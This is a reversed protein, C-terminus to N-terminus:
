LSHFVSAVDSAGYIGGEVAGFWKFRYSLYVMLWSIVVIAISIIIILNGMFANRGQLSIDNPNNPNYYLEVNQNQQYNIHSTENIVNMYLNGNITYSLQLDCTYNNNGVNNCPNINMIKALVSASHVDDRIYFGLYIFVFALLTAIIASIVGRVIGYYSLGTYIKDETSINSM